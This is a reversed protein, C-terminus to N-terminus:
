DLLLHSHLHKAQSWRSWDHVPADHARHWAGGLKGRAEGIEVADVALYVSVNNYFM